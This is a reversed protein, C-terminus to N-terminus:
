DALGLIETALELIDLLMPVSLTFIAVRAVSEIGNALTGEGCDRCIDACFHAILAIGLAKLVVTLTGSVFSNNEALLSIESFADITDGLVYSFVCFIAVAGGLRLILSIGGELKGIVCLCVCVLLAIGCSKLLLSFVDM